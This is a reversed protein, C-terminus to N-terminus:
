PPFPTPLLEDPSSLRDILSSIEASTLVPIPAIAARTEVTTYRDLALWLANLDPVIEDISVAYTRDQRDYIGHTKLQRHTVFGYIQLESGDSAIQVGLYYDAVWSPTDVWEQPVELESRDITETPILAIRNTGVTIISGNVLQWVLPLQASEIGATATPLSEARLWPLITDLCLYNLYANWRGWDSRYTQSQQWSIVRLEASIELIRDGPDACRSLM